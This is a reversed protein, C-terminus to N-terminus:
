ADPGPAPEPLTFLTLFRKVAVKDGEIRLDGARLAEDLRRGDYALAALTDPDSEIIADPRLANGRAVEFEGGAVKADFRYAGLRLEFRATVGAAAQADFMTRLSLILSDISLPNGRPLAPSRAGWRGLEMIIPGLGHGWETLEYVWTGAPPPLQRRRLVAAQELEDLRQTLVNPSISPLGARLDTFRKPGLLLERVVLLAWREGVLDLAHAAACGDNYSRRTAMAGDTM